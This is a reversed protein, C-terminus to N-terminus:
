DPPHNRPAEVVMTRGVLDGLRQRNRTLVVLVLTPLLEPYFEIWRLANRLVVHKLACREGQETVVRCRMLRKGITEGRWWEFATAYVVFLGVAAAWRWTVEIIMEPRTAVLLFSLEDAPDIHRGMPLMIYAMGPLLLSLDIAFALLRKGHGVPRLESSPMTVGLLTERRRLFVLLLVGFLVLGVALTRVRPSAVTAGQQMLAEITVVEAAASGGAPRWQGAQVVGTDLAWAAVIRDHLVGFAAGRSPVTWAGGNVEFSGGRIWEDGDTRLTWVTGDSEDAVILVTVGDVTLVDLIRSSASIPLAEPSSWTAESGASRISQYVGDAGDTSDYVIRMAGDHCSMWVAVPEHFWEPLPRDPSWRGGAFRVLVFASRDRLVAADQDDKPKTSEVDSSQDAAVDREPLPKDSSSRARQDAAVFRGIEVPVLAYLEGAGLGGELDPATDATIALPVASEPLRREVAGSTYGYRRHTGDAFIAHLRGGSVAAVAIEGTLYGIGLPRHWGGAWDRDSRCFALHMLTELRLTPDGEDSRRDRQSTPPVVRYIWIADPGGALSLEAAAFTEARAGILLCGSACLTRIFRSCATRALPSSSTRLKRKM